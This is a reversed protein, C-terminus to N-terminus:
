DCRKSVSAEPKVTSSWASRLSDFAAVTSPPFTMGIVNPKPVSASSGYPRMVSLISLRM